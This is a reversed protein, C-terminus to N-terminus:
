CVVNKYRFTLWIESPKFIRFFFSITAININGTRSKRCRGYSNKQIYREVQLGEKWGSSNFFYIEIGFGAQFLIKLLTPYNQLITIHFCLSHSM